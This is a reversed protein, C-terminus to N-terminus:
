KCVYIVVAIINGVGGAIDNISFSAVAYLIYLVTNGILFVFTYVMWPVLLEPNDQLSFLNM